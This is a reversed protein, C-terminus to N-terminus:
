RWEGQISFAAWRVPASWRGDAIQGRQAARLAAAPPFAQPGLMASYFRAMLDATSADDVDWLTTVLRAAGAYLFGRSIGVVGEGGEERGLGSECASLVVLDVPLSLGFVDGLRLYGDRPTGDASFLSFVIGSLAPTRTDTLGHAAFHVIRYNALAADEAADRTAEFGFRAMVKDPPALALIADGEQRTGPLRNLAGGAAVQRISGSADDPIHEVAPLRPDDPSVVPDALIAVIGPPRRRGAISHRLAALAAVSPESVVEHAEVVLTGHGSAAPLTLAAFPVRTQLAADAVIVLRKGDIDAAAPGLLMAGLTASATDFDARDDPMGIAKRLANAAALVAKRGPLQYTHLSAPSVVWVFSRDKGLVYDLLVTDSDLLAQMRDVTMPAADTLRAYAPDAARLAAEIRDQRALLDDIERALQTGNPDDPGLKAQQATKASLARRTAILRQVQTPDAHQLMRAQAESLLDLLSRGRTAETAELAQAAYGNGPAQQDLRMLLETRLAYAGTAREIRSARLDEGIISARQSENLAIAAQADALADRTRGQAAEIRAILFRATAEGEVSRIRHWIQLAARLDGLAGDLDGMRERLGGRNHLVLAQDNLNHTQEALALAQRLLDLAAAHDGQSGPPDLIMAKSSLSKAQALRNGLKREIQLARDIDSLADDPRDASQEIVARNNLVAALSAEDGAREDITAARGLYRLAQDNAGLGRYVSSTNDLAAAENYTDSLSAFTARTDAYIELAGQPDGTDNKVIALDSRAVAEGYPDRLHQRIAIAANIQALAATEDGQAHYAMGLGATATAETDPDSSRRAADQAQTYEAVALDTDGFGLHLQAIESLSAAQQQFDNSARAAKLTEEFTALAEDRKGMAALAGALDSRDKNVAAEDHLQRHLAMALRALAIGRAGDGQETVLKGQAALAAARVGPSIAGLAEASAFYHIARANEHLGAAANGAIILLPARREAGDPGDLLPLAQGALDLARKPNGRWWAITALSELATARMPGEGAATLAAAYAIDAANWDGAAQRLRGVGLQAAAEGSGNDIAHWAETARAYAAIAGPADGHAELSKGLHMLNLAGGRRAISEPQAAGVAREADAAQLFADAACSHDQLTDCSMALRMLANARVTADEAGTLLPLAQEAHARADASAGLAQEANALGVLARGREHPRDAPDLLTLANTYADRAAAQQGMAQLVTALGSAATVQDDHDQAAAFLPIAATLYTVAKANGDPTRLGAGAAGAFLLAVAETKSDAQQRSIALAHEFHTLADAPAARRLDAKGAEISAHAEASGPNAAGAPALPQAPASNALHLLLGALLIWSTRRM